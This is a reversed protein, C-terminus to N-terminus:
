EEEEEKMEEDQGDNGGLAANDTVEVDPSGSELDNGAHVEEDVAIAYKNVEAQTEKGSDNENDSDSTHSYQTTIKPPSTEREEAIPQKIESM